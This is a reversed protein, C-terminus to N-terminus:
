QSAGEPWRVFRDNRMVIDGDQSRFTGGSEELWDLVDQDSMRDYSVDLTGDHGASILWYGDRGARVYIPRNWGDRLPTSRIYIPEILHQLDEATGFGSISPYVDNDIAYSEIATALSRLHAMTRKQTGFIARSRVLSGNAGLVLDDIGRERITVRDYSDSPREIEPRGDAGASLLLLEHDSAGIRIPHGWGDRTPIRKRLSAPWGAITEELLAWETPADDYGFTDHSRLMAMAIRMDLETERHETTGTAGECALALAAVLM